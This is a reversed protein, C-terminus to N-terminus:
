PLLKNFAPRRDAQTPAATGEVFAIFDNIGYGVFASLDAATVDKGVIPHDTNPTADTAGQSGDAAATYTPQNNWTTVYDDNAQRAAFDKCRWYLNVFAQDISEVSDIQALANTQKTAM